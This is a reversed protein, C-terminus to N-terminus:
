SGPSGKGSTAAVLARMVDQRTLMGVVRGEDVVPFGRAHTELMLQLVRTLPLGPSITIPESNMVSGVDGAMIRRYRPVMEAQTFAFARLIDYQTVLGLLRGAEDAVPAANFGGKVLIRELEALSTSPTVAVAPSSMYDGVLFRVFDFM